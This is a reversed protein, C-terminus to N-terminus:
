GCLAELLRRVRPFTAATLKDRSDRPTHRYAYSTVGLKAAPLGRIQFERHDSNGSADDRVWRVHLGTGRSAAVVAREVRARPARASSRLWMQTGRGVEDLSLALRLDRTRRERKVRRVLASAGLHDPRGTYNREEAGTAVLWIDCPPNLGLVSPAFDVLAGLGSGNDVAGPSTPTSDSHAMVIVLCSAPIDHVGIVNRSVGKGPVRFRDYEVALGSRDFVRAVRLQASREAASAAPRPGAEALSVAFDYGPSSAGAAAPAALLALAV